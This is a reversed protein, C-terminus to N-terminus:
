KMKGNIKRRGLKSQRIKEKAEDKQKFTGKKPGTKTDPHEIHWKKMEESKRKKEEDSRKIGKNWVGMNEPMSKKIKAKHEVSLTKGKRHSVKGKQSKAFKERGALVAPTIRKTKAAESMRKLTEESFPKRTKPIKNKQELTLATSGIGIYRSDNTLDFGWSKYLQYYHLEWFEWNDVSIEDIIEVTPKVGMFLLSRIWNNKHDSREPHTKTEYIHSNLRKEPNDSKGVYRVSGNTPDTLTYIYTTTKM